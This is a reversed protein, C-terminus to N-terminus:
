GMDPRPPAAFWGAPGAMALLTDRDFSPMLSYRRVSKPKPSGGGDDVTETEEICDLIGLM